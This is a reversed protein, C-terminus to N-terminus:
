RFVSICKTFIDTGAQMKVMYCGTAEIGTNWIISHLGQELHKNVLFAIERGSLDYIKLSVQDSHPLSLDLNMERSGHISHRLALGAKYEMRRQLHKDITVSIESLPRRWIGYDPIGAFVYGGSVTLARPSTNLPLGLHFMEWSIGNDTSLFVGDETGAIINNGSVALSWVTPITTFGSDTLTWKTGNNTSLFIGNSTGAFITNSKVALSIIDEHKNGLGSNILIWGTGNDTSLFAGYISGAFINNGSVALSIIGNKLNELGSDAETWSAGNDTSRFLGLSSAAFINSGGV